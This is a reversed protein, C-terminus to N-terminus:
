DSSVSSTSRAGFPLWAGWEVPPAFGFIRDFGVRRFLLEVSFGQDDWCYVSSAFGSYLPHSNFRYGKNLARRYAANFGARSRFGMAINLIGQDCLRHGEPRPM